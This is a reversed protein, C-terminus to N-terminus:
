LPNAHGGRSVSPDPFADRIATAKLGYRELSYHHARPGAATARARSTVEQRSEPTLEAGLRSFIAEVASLPATALQTYPVDLFPQAARARTSLARTMAQAWMQSWDRGLQSLDVRRNHLRMTVEALSCWSALATPVDRHPWVITADPFVRLLADLHWLHFPSKLIWRRPRQRWQLIQLQQRLYAYDGTADRRAYWDRYGPIRARTWYAMHHPLAFVCEEPARADLRHIVRLSPAARHALWALREADRVRRGPGGSGPQPCPSLLEWLLPARHGPASALLAHLMTTGTRPLGVVFVPRPVPASTIQPNARLLARVRLRNSLHRALEANIGALGMFSLEPVALFAAHLVRLDALFQPDAPEPLGTRAAARAQLARFSSEPRRWGRRAAPTMLGNVPGVWWAVRGGAV